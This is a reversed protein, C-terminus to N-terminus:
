KKENAFFRLWKDFEDVLEVPSNSKLISRIKDIFSLVLMRLSYSDSELNDFFSRMRKCFLQLEPNMKSLAAKQKELRFDVLTEM